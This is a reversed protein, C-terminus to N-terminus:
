VTRLRGCLAALDRLRGTLADPLEPEELRWTWNGGPVAPDNMRAQTPLDLLDQMPVVAREAVSGYAARIFDGVVSEADSGLYDTLRRREEPGAREFWGRITDNDHTGTYAVSRPVHNHPLHPSDDESFAFQLVKMGPIRLEERLADVDATITGLDEAVLDLAGLSAALRDFLKRGPGPLWRGNVATTEGAEVAWYGAFGRFHDIRLLDALESNRRMREVWWAYGAEEMRNWRYLPYGWLQGTASFYDPPVGAVLEPRAAGDLAFLEQNVWVDASDHVVYIPVDGLIAIGLVAAEERVRRWQRSFVFQVFEHFAVEEELDAEASRLATPDRRSLDEPWRVWSWGGFKAKLASFLAWDRLWYAQGAGGRYAELEERHRPDRELAAWAARLLGEKRGRAAAFDAKGAPAGVDARLTEPALLGDAVLAEPSILLPNGAFASLAGYPSDGPGTPGLPLVQWIRQGARHSWRLFRVAEPGLDGVGYPGPLSTPHLLVGAARGAM